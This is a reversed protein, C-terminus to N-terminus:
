VYEDGSRGLTIKGEDALRRAILTLEKQAAEADVLRIPGSAEIDESLAEGARTSMNKFFKARLHEDAAKLAPVLKTNEVNRLLEQFDKDGIDLLDEFTFILEELRTALPADAARLDSLIKEEPAPELANLINAASKAGGISATRSTSNSSFRHEIIEDLERLAHPQLGELLAVRAIIDTRSTEPFRILIEAAQDPELYALIVAVTQPHENRIQDWVVRADMWKLTELGKTAQGLLIRDLIGSAKDAGLANTLVSRLYEDSNDVSVQSEADTLMKDLAATVDTQTLPGITSMMSGVQQVEKPTLHKLVQAAPEEGLALLLTAASRLGPNPQAAETM